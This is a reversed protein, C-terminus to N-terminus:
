GKADTKNLKRLRFFANVTKSLTGWFQTALLFTLRVPNRMNDKIFNKLNMPLIVKFRTLLYMKEFEEKTMDAYSISAIEPDGIEDWPPITKGEAKLQDYIGTGPLPMFVNFGVNSPKIKELFAITRAFDEKTEGPYGVIINAQFRLGARRTLLAAKVNEEVKSVKNMADLIRQSGSEFGYEVGACGARKMLDLMEPDIVNVRAQAFWKLRKSWPQKIFEELLETARKKSALFMDEAFYLAEVNYKNLLNDIEAIVRKTSHYRVKGPFIIPGACFNCRYPCGRATFISTTRLSLNRSTFRSPRLYSEMDLLHHAPFPLSDLDAIHPRPENKIVKGDKRYAIGKVDSLATGNVLDLSTEEGEGIIAVDISSFEKLTEEPLATVHPGGLSIQVNPFKAKIKKSIQGVDLMNPTTASIGIFDPRFDEIESITIDDARDFDIGEKRLIVDRDLIKVVHGSRELVAAVYALGLPPWFQKNEDVKARKQSLLPYILVIRM